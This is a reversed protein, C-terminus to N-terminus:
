KNESGTTEYKETLTYTQGQSEISPIVQQYGKSTKDIVLIFKGPDNNYTSDTANYFIDEIVTDKSITYSGIGFSSVSDTPNFNAYMVYHDTFIKLQQLTTYTTDTKENKINQSLMQYVGEMSSIEKKDYSNCAALLLLFGLLRKM